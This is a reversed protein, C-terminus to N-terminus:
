TREEDNHVEKIVKGLLECGIDNAEAASELNEARRILERWAERTFPVHEGPGDVATEELYKLITSIPPHSTEADEDFMGVSLWLEWPLDNKTKEQLDPWAMAIEAMLRPDAASVENWESAIQTAMEVVSKARKKTLNVHIM